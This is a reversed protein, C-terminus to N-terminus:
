QKGSKENLWRSYARPDYTPSMGNKENLWRSYAWWDDNGLKNSPSLRDMIYDYCESCIIKDTDVDDIGGLPHGTIMVRHWGEPQEKKGLASVFVRYEKNCTKSDCTWFEVTTRGM